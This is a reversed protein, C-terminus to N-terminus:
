NVTISATRCPVLPEANQCNAISNVLSDFAATETNALNLEFTGSGVAQFMVTAVVVTGTATGTGPTFCSVYANGIAPDGDGPFLGPEDGDGEPAPPTCTWGAAAGGLADENIDPNRALSSGGNITPAVVKRIDYDLRFNFAGLGPSPVNTLVVAVRFVDGVKITRSTQIGPESANTDIIWEVGSAAANPQAITPPDITAGAPPDPLDTVIHPDENPDGGTLFPDIEGSDITERELDTPTPAELVFPGDVITPAAEAAPSGDTGSPQTEGPVPTTGPAPSGGNANATGSAGPTSNAAESASFGPTGSKTAGPTGARATKTVSATKDSDDGGGGGCAALLTLAVCLAATAALGWKKVQGVEL